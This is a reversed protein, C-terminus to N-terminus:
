GMVNPGGYALTGPVHDVHISPLPCPATARTGQVSSAGAGADGPPGMGVNLTQDASPPSLPGASPDGAAHDGKPERRAAQSGAALAAPRASPPTTRAAVPLGVGPIAATYSLHSRVSAEKGSTVSSVRIPRRQLGSPAHSTPVWMGVSVEAPPGTSSGMGRASPLASPRVM